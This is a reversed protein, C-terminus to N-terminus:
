NLVESDVSLTGAALQLTAASVRQDHVSALYRTQADLVASETRLLDTVTALGSEYRNQTIRLSEQAQEVAAKTVEIRIQAARLDEWARRVQLRVASDLRQEQARAQRMLHGAEEIRAKDAFGNFLNWRLGVAALWNAGGQTVFRGRDAEFAVRAVVQPLLSGRAASTQTDAINAALRAQRVEPRQLLAQKEHEQLELEPLPTPTLTTSLLHVTDLPLGLADNLGARAVNLDARRRIQQERMAALHVDISLVDVQTSMGAEHVARARKLDAEASRVAEEAAKLSQEALLAGYYARVVAAIVDQQTRRGQEGTAERGLEAARVAHRTMGADYVVQEVTLQSQFNNVADPRNLTDIRFNQESFRHQTLLSSFVFVPNDSRFYMESYNLKPLYGSRAQRIRSDAARIGADTAAIAQHKSLALQVAEKVSITEQAGASTIFLTLSLFVPRM